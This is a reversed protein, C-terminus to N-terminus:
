LKQSQLKLLNQQAILVKQIIFSSIDEATYLEEKGNYNVRIKPKGEDNIVNYNLHESFKRKKFQEYSLGVFRKVDYILTAGELKQDLVDEGIFINKSNESFLVLSPTTREGIGNPALIINSNKYIAISSNSTGYDIGFYHSEM